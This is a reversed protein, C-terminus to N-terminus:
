SKVESSKCVPCDLVSCDRMIGCRACVAHSSGTLNIVPRTATFGPYEVIMRMGALVFALDRYANISQRWSQWSGSLNRSFGKLEWLTRPLFAAAREKAQTKTMSHWVGRGAKYWEWRKRALDARFWPRKRHGACWMLAYSLEHEGNEECWGAAVVLPGPNDPAAAEVGPWLSELDAAM